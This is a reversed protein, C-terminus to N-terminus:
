HNHPRRPESSACTMTVLCIPKSAPGTNMLRGGSMKYVAVNLKTYLKAGLRGRM